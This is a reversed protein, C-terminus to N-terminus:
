LPSSSCCLIPKQRHGVAHQLMVLAQEAVPVVVFGTTYHLRTCGPDPVVADDVAPHTCLCTRVVEKLLLPPFYAPPATANFCPLALQLWVVASVTEPLQGPYALCQNGNHFPRPVGPEPPGPHFHGCHLSVPDPQRDSGTGVTCQQNSGVGASWAVPTLPHM